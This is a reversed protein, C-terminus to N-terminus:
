NKEQYISQILEGPADQYRDYYERIWSSITKAYKTKFYKSQLMPLVGTCFEKSVILNTIIQREMDLSVKTTKM